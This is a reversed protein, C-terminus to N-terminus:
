SKFVINRKFFGSFVNVIQYFKILSRAQKVYTGHLYIKLLIAQMGCGLLFAIGFLRRFILSVDYVTLLYFVNVVQRLRRKERICILQFSAIM